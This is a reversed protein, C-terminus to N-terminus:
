AVKAKVVFYIRENITRCQPRYTVTPTLRLRYFQLQNGGPRLTKVKKTRGYILNLYDQNPYKKAKIIVINARRTLMFDLSKETDDILIDFSGVSSIGPPNVRCAISLAGSSPPSFSDYSYRMELNKLDWFEISCRAPEIYDDLNTTQPIGDVYGVSSM